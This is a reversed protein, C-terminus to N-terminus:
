NKHHCRFCYHEAEIIYFCDCLIMVENKGNLIWKRFQYYNNRDTVYWKNRQESWAAGLKKVVEIDENPVEFYLAM